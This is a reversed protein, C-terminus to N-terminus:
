GAKGSSAGAAKPQDNGAPKTKPKATAVVTTNGKDDAKPTQIDWGTVKLQIKGLLKNLDAVVQNVTRVDVDTLEGSVHITVNHLWKHALQDCEAYEAGFSIEKFYDIQPQTFRGKLVEQAQDGTMNPRVEPSYLMRIVAKDMDSFRNTLSWPQYFMSDPYTDSDKMPGLSQTIEERICHVREAQTTNTAVMAVARTIEGNSNWYAAFYGINGPVVGPVYVAFQTQPVFHVEIDAKEASYALCPLLFTAAAFSLFANQRM